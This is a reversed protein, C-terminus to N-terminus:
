HYICRCYAMPKGHEKKRNNLQATCTTNNFAGRARRSSRCCICHTTLIDTHTCTHTEHAAAGESSTGLTACSRASLRSRGGPDALADTSVMVHLVICIYHNLVGCMRCLRIYQWMTNNFLRNCATCRFTFLLVSIFFCIESFLWFTCLYCAFIYIM